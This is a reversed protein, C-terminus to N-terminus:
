KIRDKNKSEILGVAVDDVNPLNVKIGSESKKPIINEQKLNLTETPDTFVKDKVSKKSAESKVLGTLLLTFSYKLAVELPTILFRNDVISFKSISKSSSKFVWNSFSKFKSGFVFLGIINSFIM